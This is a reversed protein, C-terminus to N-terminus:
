KNNPLKRYVSRLYPSVCYRGLISQIDAYTNLERYESVSVGMRSLADTRSLGIGGLAGWFLVCQDTLFYYLYSYEIEELASLNTNRSSKILQIFPDYSTGGVVRNIDKMLIELIPMVKECATDGYLTLLKQFGDSVNDWLVMSSRPSYDAFCTLVDDFIVDVTYKRYFINIVVKEPYEFLSYRKRWLLLLEMGDAYLGDLNVGM